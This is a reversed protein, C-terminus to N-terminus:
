WATSVRQQLCGLSGDALGPTGEPHEELLFRRANVLGFFKSLHESLAVRGLYFAEVLHKGGRCLGVVLRAAGRLVVDFGSHLVNGSKCGRKEM